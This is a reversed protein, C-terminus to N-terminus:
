ALRTKKNEEGLIRICTSYMSCLISTDFVQIPHILLAANRLDHVVYAPREDFARRRWRVALHVLAQRRHDGRRIRALQQVPHDVVTASTHGQVLRVLRELRQIQGPVRNIGHVLPQSRRQCTCYEPVTQFLQMQAAVRQLIQIRPQSPQDNVLCLRTAFRGQGRDEDVCVYQSLDAPRRRRQDGNALAQLVQVDALRLYPRNVHKRRRQRPRDRQMRELVQVDGSVDLEVRKGNAKKGGHWVKPAQVGIRASQARDRFVDGDALVELVTPEVAVVEDIQGVSQKRAHLDGPQAEVHVLQLRQRLAYPIERIQLAKREMLVPQPIERSHNGLAHLKLGQGQM